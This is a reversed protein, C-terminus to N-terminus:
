VFINYLDSQKPKLQRSNEWYNSVIDKLFQNQIKQVKETVNFKYISSLKTFLAHIYCAIADDSLYQQHFLQANELIIKTVEPNKSAWKMVRRVNTTQVIKRSIISSLMEKYPIKAPKINIPIFHVFPKLDRSFWQREQSLPKMVVVNNAFAEQLRWANYNGDIVIHYRYLDFTSHMDMYPKSLSVFLDLEVPYAGVDLYKTSDLMSFAENLISFRGKGIGNNMRCRFWAKNLKGEWAKENLISINYKYQKYYGKPILIDNFNESTCYSSYLIGQPVNMSSRPWDRDNLPLIVDPLKLKDHINRFMTLDIHDYWTHDPKPGIFEVTDSEAHIILFQGTHKKIQDWSITSVEINRDALSVSEPYRDCLSTKAVSAKIVIIFTFLIMQRM